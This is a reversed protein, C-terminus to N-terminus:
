LIQMALIFAITCSTAAIALLTLNVRKLIVIRRKEHQKTALLQNTAIEMAQAYEEIQEQLDLTFEYLDQAREVEATLMPRTTSRIIYRSLDADNEKILNKELLKEIANRASQDLIENCFGEIQDRKLHTVSQVLNM